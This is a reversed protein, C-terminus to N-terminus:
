AIYPTKSFLVFAVKWRFIPESLVAKTYSHFLIDSSNIKFDHLDKRLRTSVIVSFTVAM